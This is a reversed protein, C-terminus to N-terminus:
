PAGRASRPVAVVPMGGSPAFTIGRRVLRIDAGPARRLDVRALITALVIKMEFSAFAMGLCRRTGGGFPYYHYPDIRRGIFRAPDFRDPDPWLEPRRHTLYISALVVVGAPLDHGGIRAPRALMRAVMPIIPTLRLTEKISADLWELRGVHEPSVPGTGVVTDIEARVRAMAEPNRTLHHVTWALTTASTEHGAVLLTLMEDHLERDTMAAGQEDRAQLLMSLVDERGDGGARRRAAIEDLLLREVAAKARVMPSWPALRGIELRLPGLDVRAEAITRLRAAYVVPVMLLLATGLPSAGRDTWAVLVERMRGLRKAEDIGFVTRLIVELTVAQMEAHIPFARGMPWTAMARVTADRMAEGYRRMREGHFPPLMLKRERLHREGDLLLISNEGLVARLLVNAEGARMEEPDGTFLDRVASPDSFVVLPPSKPFRMTFPTGYRRVAGELTPLPRRLWRLMQLVPADGPGPPLSGPEHLM